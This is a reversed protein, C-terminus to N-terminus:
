QLLPNSEGVARLYLPVPPLPTLGAIRYTGTMTTGYAAELVECKRLIRRFDALNAHINFTRLLMMNLSM